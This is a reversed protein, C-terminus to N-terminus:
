KRHRIASPRTKMAPNNTTPQAEGFLGTLVRHAAAKKSFRKTYVEAQQLTKDGLVANM